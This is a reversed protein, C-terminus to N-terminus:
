SSFEETSFLLLNLLFLDGCLLKCNQFGRKFCIFSGIESLSRNGADEGHVVYIIIDLIKYFYFVFEKFLNLILQSLQLVIINTNGQMQPVM